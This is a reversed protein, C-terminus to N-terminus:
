DTKELWKSQKIKNILKKTISINPFLDELSQFMSTNWQTNGRYFPTPETYYRSVNYKKCWQNYTLNSKFDSYKVKLKKEM